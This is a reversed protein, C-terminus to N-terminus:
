LGLEVLFGDVEANPFEALGLECRWRSAAPWQLVIYHLRTPCAFKVAGCLVHAEDRSPLGQSDVRCSGTAYPADPGGLAHCLAQEASELLQSADKGSRKGTSWEDSQVRQLHRLESESVLTLRHRLQKRRAVLGLQRARPVTKAAPEVIEELVRGALEIGHDWVFPWHPLPALELPTQRTCGICNARALIQVIKRQGHANSIPGFSKMQMQAAFEDASLKKEQEWSKKAWKAAKMAKWRDRQFSRQANAPPDVAIRVELCNSDRAQAARQILEMTHDLAQRDAQPVLVSCAGPLSSDTTEYPWLGCTVLPAAVETRSWRQQLEEDKVIGVSDRTWGWLM